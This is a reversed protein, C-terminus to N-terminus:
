VRRHLRHRVRMLSNLLIEIKIPYPSSNVESTLHEEGTSGRERALYGLAKFIWSGVRVMKRLVGGWAGLGLGVVMASM